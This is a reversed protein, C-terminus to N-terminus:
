EGYVEKDMMQAFRTWSIRKGSQRKRGIWSLSGRGLILTGIKEEAFYIELNLSNGARILSAVHLKAEVRHKKRSKKAM